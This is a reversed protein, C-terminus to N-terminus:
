RLRVPLRNPDSLLPADLEALQREDLADDLRVVQKGHVEKGFACPFGTPTPSSPRTSSLSSASTSRMM